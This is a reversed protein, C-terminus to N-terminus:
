LLPFGVLITQSSLINGTCTTVLAPLLQKGPQSHPSGPPGGAQDCIARVNVLKSVKSLIVRQAEIDEDTLQSLSQIKGTIIM